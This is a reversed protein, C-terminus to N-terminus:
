TNGIPSLWVFVKIMEKLLICPTGKSRRLKSANVATVWKFGGQCFVNKLKDFAWRCGDKKIIHFEGYYYHAAVQRKSGRM